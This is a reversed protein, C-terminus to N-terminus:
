VGWNTNGVDPPMLVIIPKAEPVNGGTWCVPVYLLNLVTVGIPEVILLKIILHLIILLLTVIGLSIKSPNGILVDNPEFINEYIADNISTISTVSKLSSSIKLPQLPQKHNDQTILHSYDEVKFLVNQQKIFFDSQILYDIDDIINIKYNNKIALFSGYYDLGHIFKHEHLIKSSLFSFFGDVFSSNNYDELKSHIKVTKDFSPLNFLQPDTHNYKGVIYVCLNM